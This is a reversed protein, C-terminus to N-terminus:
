SRHVSTSMTAAAARRFTQPLFGTGDKGYGLLFGANELREYFLADRKRIEAWAAAQQREMVRFPISAFLLDAREPTMGHAVAEDSYLQGFMGLLTERRIVVVPSRQVM